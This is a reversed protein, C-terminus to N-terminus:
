KISKRALDQPLQQSELSRAKKIQIGGCASCKQCCSGFCLPCPDVHMLKGEWEVKGRGGCIHCLLLGFGHCKSCVQQQHQDLGILLRRKAAASIAIVAVLLAMFTGIPGRMRGTKTLPPGITGVTSIFMAGGSQSTEQLLSSPFRERSRRRGINQNHTEVIKKDNLSHINSAPDTDEFNLAACIELLVFEAPMFLPNPPTVKSGTDSAIGGPPKEHSGEFIALMSTVVYRTHATQYKASKSSRLGAASCPLQKKGKFFRCDGVCCRAEIAEPSSRGELDVSYSQIGASPSQLNLANM